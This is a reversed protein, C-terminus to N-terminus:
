FFFAQVQQLGLSAGIVMAWGMVALLLILLGRPLTGPEPHDAFRASKRSTSFGNAM